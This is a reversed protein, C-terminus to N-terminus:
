GCPPAYLDGHMVLARPRGCFFIFEFPVDFCPICKWYKIGSANQSARDGVDGSGGGMDNLQRITEQYLM